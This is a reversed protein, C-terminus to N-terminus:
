AAAAIRVRSWNVVAVQRTRAAVRQAVELIRDLEEQTVTIVGGGQGAHHSAGADM